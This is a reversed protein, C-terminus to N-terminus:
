PLHKIGEMPPLGLADRLGEQELTSRSALAEATFSGGIENSQFLEPKTEKIRYLKPAGEPRDCEPTKGM